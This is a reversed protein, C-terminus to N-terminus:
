HILRLLAAASESRLEREAIQSDGDADSAKFLKEVLALYEALSLTGDHDPDARAFDPRSIRQVVEKYELTGDRDHDLRQFLKTAALRVEDIDLTYDKDVDLTQLIAHAAVAREGAALTAALCIVAALMRSGRAARLIKM